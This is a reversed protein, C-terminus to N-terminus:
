VSFRVVGAPWKRYEKEAKQVNATRIGRTIRYLVPMGRVFALELYFPYWCIGTSFSASGRVLVPMGCSPPVLGGRGFKLYM